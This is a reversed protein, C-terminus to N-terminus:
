PAEAVARAISAPRARRVLDRLRPRHRLVAVLEGPPSDRVGDVTLFLPLSLAPVEVTYTLGRWPVELRAPRRRMPRDLFVDDDVRFVGPAIPDGSLHFVPDFSEGDHRAFNQEAAWDYDELRDANARWELHHRLEHTLTEWAEDHWSFDGGSSQALARFSGYYLVVRSQTEDDGGHLPICEGLTYVGERVPDPV